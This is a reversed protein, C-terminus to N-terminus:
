QISGRPCLDAVSINQPPFDSLIGFTQDNLYSAGFPTCYLNGSKDRYTIRGFVVIPTTGDWPLFSDPAVYLSEVKYTDQVSVADTVRQPGPDLRDNTEATDPPEIKLRSYQTGFLVHRHVYVHYATSRGENQYPIEVFFPHGRSLEYRQTVTDGIKFDGIVIRPRQDAQFNWKTQLNQWSYNVLILFAILGGIGEFVWKVRKAASARQWHERLTWKDSKPKDSKNQAKPPAKNVKSTM